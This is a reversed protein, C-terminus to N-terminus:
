QAGHERDDETKGEFPFCEAGVRALKAGPIPCLSVGVYISTKNRDNNEDNWLNKKKAVSM